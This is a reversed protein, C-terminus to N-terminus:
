KQFNYKVKITDKPVFLKNKKGYNPNLEIYAETNQNLTEYIITREANLKKLILGGDDLIEYYVYYDTNNISGTGLVFTSNPQSDYQISKIKVTTVPQDRDMYQIVKLISILLTIVLMIMFLLKIIKTLIDDRYM